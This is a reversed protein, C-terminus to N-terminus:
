RRLAPLSTRRSSTLAILDNHPSTLTLHPTSTSGKSTLLAHWTALPPRSPLSGVKSQLAAVEGSAAAHAKDAEKQVYSLQMQLKEHAVSAQAEVETLRGRSAISESSELRAQHLEQTVGELRGEAEDTRRRLRSAEENLARQELSSGHLEAKLAAVEGQLADARDRQMAANAAIESQAAALQEALRTREGELRRVRAAEDDRMSAVQAQAERENAAAANALEDRSKQLLAERRVGETQRREMDMRLGALERGAESLRLAGAAKESALAHQADDLHARLARMETENHLAGAHLREQTAASADLEHQLHSVRRDLSEKSALALRAEAKAEGHASANAQM